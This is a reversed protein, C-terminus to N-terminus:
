RGPSDAPKDRRNGSKVNLPPIRELTVGPPLAGDLNIRTIETEAARRDGRITVTGEVTGARAPRATVAVVGSLAKFRREVVWTQITELDMESYGPAAIVRYRLVTTAAGPQVTDSHAEVAAVMGGGLLALPLIM